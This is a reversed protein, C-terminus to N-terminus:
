VNTAPGSTLLDQERLREMLAKRHAEKQGERHARTRMVLAAAPGVYVGDIWNAPNAEPEDELITLWDIM